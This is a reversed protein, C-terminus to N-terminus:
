DFWGHLRWEGREEFIWARRGEVEISWYARDFAATPDWWGGCLREPGEAREVPQGRRGLRAHVPRGGRARVEIREPRPLLVMPRPLVTPREFAELVEVPDESVLAEPIGPASPFLRPPPFPVQSWSAEPRWGDALRACGLAADGLQDALRALLDPLPETAERRDALGPQWGTDPATEIAELSLSEVPAEVRVQELRRAILRELTTTARTARGVRLTEARLAGGELASHPELKLVVRVRVAALDREELVHCLESVLGPLVFQLEATTTAGALAASVRPAQLEPAAVLHALSSRGGRAIRHGEVAQPYRGAVSAPDLAAFQSVRRVGVAQLSRVVEAPMRLAEVPLTSLAAAGAGPEIVLVEGDDVAWTAIALALLPDDAVAARAQHGLEEALSVARRALPAEGGFLHSVSAISLAIADPWPFRVQDSLGGFARVLAARDVQEEAEVHDLLAVGPVLARAESATMGTRLGERIAAPTLAVLRMANKVESILGAIENAEFGCRELRFAPLQVVLSRM